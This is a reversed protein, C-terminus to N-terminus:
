INLHKFVYLANSPYYPGSSFTNYAKNGIVNNASGPSQNVISNVASGYFMQGVISNVASTEFSNEAMNGIVNSTQQYSSQLNSQTQPARNQYSGNYIFHGRRAVAPYGSNFQAFTFSSSSWLIVFCFIILKM